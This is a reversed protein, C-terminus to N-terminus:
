RRGDPPLPRFTVYGKLGVLSRAQALSAEDLATDDAHVTVFRTGKPRREGAISPGTVVSGVEGLGLRQYAGHLVEWLLASRKSEM